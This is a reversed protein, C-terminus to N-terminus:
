GKLLAVFLGSPTNFLGISKIRALTDLEIKTLPRVTRPQWADLNFESESSQSNIRNRMFWWGFALALLVLGGVVFTSM